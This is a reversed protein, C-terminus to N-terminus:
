VLLGSSRETHQPPLLHGGCVTCGPWWSEPFMQGAASFCRGATSSVSAAFFSPRGRLHSSWLLRRVGECLWPFRKWFSGIPASSQSSRSPVAVGSSRTFVQSIDAYSRSWLDRRCRGAHSWQLLLSMILCWTVYFMCTPNTTSKHTKTTLQLWEM